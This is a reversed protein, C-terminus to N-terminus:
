SKNNSNYKPFLPYGKFISKFCLNKNLNITSLKLYNEGSFINELFLNFIIM